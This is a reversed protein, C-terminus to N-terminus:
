KREKLERDIQKILQECSPKLVCVLVQHMTDANFHRRLNESHQKISHVTLNLNEAMEKQSKGQLYLKLVELQREKLIKTKM